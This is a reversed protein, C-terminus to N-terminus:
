EVFGAVEQGVVIPVPKPRADNVLSLDSHCHGTAKGRILVEGPGSATLDVTDMLLPKTTSFSREVSTELRIAAEMNM